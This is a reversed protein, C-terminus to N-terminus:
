LAYLSYTVTTTYTGTTHNLYEAASAAPVSYEINYGRLSEGTDCSIITNETSTSLSQATLTPSVSGEDGAGLYSGLTPTVTITSVPITEAGSTLDTSAIVKVEYEGTASVQVHDTKQGSTNGSQFHEPTNMDIDVSADAVTIEFSSGLNVNLTTEATDETQAFLSNATLAVIAVSAVKFFNTM